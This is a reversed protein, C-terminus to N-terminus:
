DKHPDITDNVDLASYMHSKLYKSKFNTSSKASKHSKKTTCIRLSTNQQNIFMFLTAIYRLELLSLIKFYIRSTTPQIETETESYIAWPIYKELQLVAKEWRVNLNYWKTSSM